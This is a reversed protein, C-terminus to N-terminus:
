IFELQDETFKENHSGGVIELKGGCSCRQDALKAGRRNRFSNMKNCDICRATM